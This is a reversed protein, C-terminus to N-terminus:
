CETNRPLTRARTRGHTHVRRSTEYFKVVADRAVSPDPFTAATQAPRKNLTILRDYHVNRILASAFERVRSMRSAESPANIRAVNPSDRAKGSSAGFKRFKAISATAILQLNRFVLSPIFAPFARIRFRNRLSFRRELERWATRPPERTVRSIKM